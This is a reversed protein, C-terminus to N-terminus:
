HDEEHESLGCACRGGALQENEATLRSIAASLRNVEFMLADIDSHDPLDAIIARLQENEAEYHGANSAETNLAERLRENEALLQDLSAAAAEHIASNNQNSWGFPENIYDRLVKEPDTNM